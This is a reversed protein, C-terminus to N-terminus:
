RPKRDRRRYTPREDNAAVRHRGREEGAATTSRPIAAPPERFKPRMPKKGDACVALVMVGCAAIIPVGIIMLVWTAKVIGLEWAVVPAAVATPMLVLAAPFIGPTEGFTRVREIIKM